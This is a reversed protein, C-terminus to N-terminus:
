IICKQAAIFDERAPYFVDTVSCDTKAIASHPANAPIKVVMGETLKHMVGNVVLELEGQTVLTIQEHLHHHEPLVTDKDIKWFAITQHDTHVLKATLGPLPNFDPLHQLEIRDSM